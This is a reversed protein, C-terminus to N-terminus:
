ERRASHDQSTAGQSNGAGLAEEYFDLLSARLFGQEFGQVILVRGAAGMQARAKAPMNRMRRMAQVLSDTDRPPVILGNVGPRVIENSGNVNTAILPKEMAAAQLLVNPFGERYSPLVLVDMLALLPRIDEHFGALIINPCTKMQQHTHASVPASADYNGVCILRTQKCDMRKFAAVLEDLGKDRNLRGVFGFVFEDERIGYDQRFCAATKAVGAAGPNFRAVDVGAINGNGIIRMPKRTIGFCALDNMVGRGEPVVHTTAASIIRDVTILVRRKMGTATPFILGTFTHIRVPVRALFAALMAVLGAKPTYSHVLDPRLSRIVWFMRWISVIDALPAIGRRMPVWRVAVCKGVPVFKESPSTAVTVNFHQALWKPQGALITSLTEPITTVILIKSRANM